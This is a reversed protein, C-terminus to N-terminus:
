ESRLADVPNIRVARNAPMLGALLGSIILIIIATVAVSFNVEPNTFSDDEIYGGVIELLWVGTTLGVCGAFATLIVSELMIQYIISWPTAGVSRRIGIEKTRERIVILMINSIGIIGAFLTLIGV